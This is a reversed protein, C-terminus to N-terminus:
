AQGMWDKNSPCPIQIFASFGDRSPELLTSFAVDSSVTPISISERSYLHEVWGGRLCICLERALLLWSVGPYGLWHHNLFVFHLMARCHTM